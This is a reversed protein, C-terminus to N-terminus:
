EQIIGEFELSTEISPIDQIDSLRELVKEKIIKKMDTKNEKIDEPKLEIIFGYQRNNYECMVNITAYLINNDKKYKKIKGINIKM